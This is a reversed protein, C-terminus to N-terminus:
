PANKITQKVAMVKQPIGINKWSTALLLVYDSKLVVFCCFMSLTQVFCCFLLFLLVIFVVFWSANHCCANLYGNSLVKTRSPHSQHCLQTRHEFTSSFGVIIFINVSSLLDSFFFCNNHGPTPIAVIVTTPKRSMQQQTIMAQVKKQRKAVYETIGSRGQAVQPSQCEFM